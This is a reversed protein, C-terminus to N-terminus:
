IMSRIRGKAISQWREYEKKDCQIAFGASFCNRRFAFTKRWSSPVIFYEVGNPIQALVTDFCCGETAHINVSVALSDGVFTIRIDVLQAMVANVIVIGQGAVGVLIHELM